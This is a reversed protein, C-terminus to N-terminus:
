AGPFIFVAKGPGTRQTTGGSSKQHRGHKQYDILLQIPLTDVQPATVKLNDLKKEFSEIRSALLTINHLLNEFQGAIEKQDALVENLVTTMVENEM